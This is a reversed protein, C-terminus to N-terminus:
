YNQQLNRHIYFLLSAIMAKIIVPLNGFKVSSESNTGSVFILCMCYYAALFPVFMALTLIHSGNENHNMTRVIPSMGGINLVLKLFKYQVQIQNDSAMASTFYAALLFCSNVIRNIISQARALAGCLVALVVFIFAMLLMYSDAGLSLNILIALLAGIVEGHNTNRHLYSIDNESMFPSSLILLLTLASTAFFFCYEGILGQELKFM